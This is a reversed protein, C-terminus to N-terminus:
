VEWNSKPLLYVTQEMACAGPQGGAKSCSIKAVPLRGWISCFVSNRRSRWCNKRFTRREAQLCKGDHKDKKNKNPPVATALIQAVNFVVLAFEVAVIWTECTEPTNQFAPKKNYFLYFHLHLWNSKWFVKTVFCYTKWDNGWDGRKIYM